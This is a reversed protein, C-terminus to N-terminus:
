GSEGTFAISHTIKINTDEVELKQPSISLVKWHKGFVQGKIVNVVEDDSQSKLVALAGNKSVILGVYKYPPAPPEAVNLSAQNSFLKADTKSRIQIGLNGQTRIVDAPVKIKIETANVFTTPFERGDVYGQAEAPIKEGFVTLTFDGTRAMVGAPNVSFITIPPPEPTPTPKVPPLPTPTPPPPYVFINRGTGAGASEKSWMAALDLPQSVIPEPTAGPRPKPTPSPAGSAKPGAGSAPAAQQPSRASDGGTFFQLYIAGAAVLLLAGLLIKQRTEPSKEKTTKEQSM